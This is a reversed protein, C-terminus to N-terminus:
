DKEGYLSENNVFKPESPEGQSDLIIQLLELIESREIKEQRAYDMIQMLLLSAKLKKALSM